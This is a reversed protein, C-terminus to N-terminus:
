ELFTGYGKVRQNWYSSSQIDTIVIGQSTSAHIMVPSEGQESVILGVHNIGSGNDFFVLDGKQVKNEKIKKATDYQERSRRPLEIQYASFIYSTFGSCDFGSPTNGAHVYPKGLQQKAFLIIEDRNKANFSFEKVIEEQKPKEVPTDDNIIPVQDFLERVVVSLDDSDKQKGERQLDGIRNLLDQKLAVVDELHSEIVQQGDSTALLDLYMKKADELSNPRAKLWQKNESLQFTSLARYFTPIKSYDYEPKNLLKGSQKYVKKYHGQNYYLELRDFAPTQANVVGSFPLLFLVLFLRTM